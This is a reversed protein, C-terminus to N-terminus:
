ILSSRSRSRVESRFDVVPRDLRLSDSKKISMGYMLLDMTDMQQGVEEQEEQVEEVLHPEMNGLM